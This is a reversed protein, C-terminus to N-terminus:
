LIQSIKIAKSNCIKLKNLFLLMEHFFEIQYPSGDYVNKFKCPDGLSISNLLDFLNNFKEIVEITGFADAPLAGVTVYTNMGSAVTHSLVQSALGAKMKEFASPCIHSDTLKPACRYFQQKDARYFDNIFTWSTKKEDFHFSHNFLNNRTAKVLHCPDFIYLLNQDGFQFEPNEHTVGLLKSLKIFNSGMDSAISEIKLGIELLKPILEGMITKLKSAKLQSGVLFYALPQKCSSYLGRAMIVLANKCIFPEETQEGLDAFGVIRDQTVNFAINAKLSIEDICLICHKDQELLTNLKIQLAKYLVANNIGPQCSINETIRHLSRKTPLTLLSGIFKYAKPSLFHFTLAFQKLEMSFRHSKRRKGKLAVHTKIVCALPKSLFKDCLRNFDRVDPDEKQRAKATVGFKRMKKIQLRLKRKRPTNSSLQSSTQTSASPSLLGPPSNESQKDIEISLLNGLPECVSYHSTSPGSFIDLLPHKEPTKTRDYPSNKEAISQQALTAPKM